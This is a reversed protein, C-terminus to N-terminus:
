MMMMMIENIAYKCIQQLLTQLNSLTQFLYILNYDFTIYYIALHNANAMSSQMKTAAIFAAGSSISHDNTVRTMRYNNEYDSLENTSGINDCSGSSNLQM